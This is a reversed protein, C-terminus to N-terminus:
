ASAPGADDAPKEKPKAKSKPKATRTEPTIALPPNGPTDVEVPAPHNRLSQVLKALADAVIRSAYSDVMNMADGRAIQEFQEPSDIREFNPCCIGVESEAVVPPGSDLTDQEFAISLRIKMSTYPFPNDTSPWRFSFPFGPGTPWPKGYTKM